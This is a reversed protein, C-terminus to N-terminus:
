DDGDDSIVISVRRSKSLCQYNHHGYEECKSCWVKANVLKKFTLDIKLTVDFTGEITDLDYPGTIM